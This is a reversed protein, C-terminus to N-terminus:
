VFYSDYEGHSSPSRDSSDLGFNNQIELSEVADNGSIISSVATDQVPIKVEM